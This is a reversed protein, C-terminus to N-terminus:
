AGGAEMRELVALAEVHPTQPFLDFGEVSRLAYGAECLVALDRALTAPDCSLYVVRAAGVRALEAAGARGLGARPPDLLVVDPRPATAPWRALESECDGERVEVHDLSARALNFRLDSVAAHGSEVAVAALFHPACGVTFFGAGAYLELLLGAERGAPGLVARRVAAALPDLLPRNAQAFVGPSIRLPRGEVSLEVAAGAGAGLDDGPCRRAVAGTDGAVLEWEGDEVRGARADDSLRALRAELEPELVPCARVECLAHSRRRRFGARGGEVHLRARLRTGYGSPSAHFAIPRPVRLHGIRELADGLISTKARAQAEDDLHQWTCGGCTGFVACRPEVRDPGPELLRVIRGRVWRARSETLALEVRDGPAAAEVFAVRGDPLHAV